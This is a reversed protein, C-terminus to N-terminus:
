GMFDLIDAVTAFNRIQAGTLEKGLEDDVMVILSLRTMSDWNDLDELVTDETLEGSDLEFLEELLALKKDKDM